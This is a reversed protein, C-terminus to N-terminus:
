ATKCRSPAQRRPRPAWTSRAATSSSTPPPPCPAPSAWDYRAATSFTQGGYSNASNALTVTGGGYISLSGSSGSIPGSFVTPGTGEVLLLNGTSASGLNIPGGVNIGGAGVTWHQSTRLAIPCDLNPAYAAQNSVGAEGITM